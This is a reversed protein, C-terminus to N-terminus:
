GAQLVPDVFGFASTLGFNINPILGPVTVLAIVTGSTVNCAAGCPRNNYLRDAFGLSNSTRAFYNGTPMNSAIYNGSADTFATGFLTIGTYVQVRVGSIPAG